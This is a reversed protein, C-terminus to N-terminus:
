FIERYFTNNLFFEYYFTINLFKLLLIDIKILIQLKM